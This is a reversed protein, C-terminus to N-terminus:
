HAARRAETHAAAHALTARSNAGLAQTIYARADALTSDPGLAEKLAAPNLVVTHRATVHAGLEDESFTWSGSHGFLLAPAATQKYVIQEGPFCLRISETTHASGDKTVTEMRLRQVGPAQETLDVKGVHPLIEPWLDARDIFDYADAAAGPMDIVDEFAFVIDEVPHGLEAIRALAALEKPSNRDLGANIWGINEPTDGAAQFEHVLVVETRGDPLERFLWEGGMSAVPPRSHDQAFTVRLADPDLTRRSTWDRVEDGVVAWLRFREARDGKEIHRVHVSPGFVAPWRTVDAVLDYLVRAPAAVVATHETRHVRLGPM